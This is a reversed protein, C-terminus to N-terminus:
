LYPNICTCLHEERVGDTQSSEGSQATVVVEVMVAVPVMSTRIYMKPPALHRKTSQNFNEWPNQLDAYTKLFGSLKHTAELSILNLFLDM